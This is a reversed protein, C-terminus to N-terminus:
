TRQEPQTNQWGLAWIFPAEATVALLMLVVVRSAYM